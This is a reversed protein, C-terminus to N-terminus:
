RRGLGREIEQALDPCLPLWPAGLTQTFRAILRSAGSCVRLPLHRGFASVTVSRRERFSRAALAMGRLPLEPIAPLM